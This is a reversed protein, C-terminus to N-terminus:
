NEIIHSRVRKQLAKMNELLNEKESM